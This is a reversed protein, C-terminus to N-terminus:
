IHVLLEGATLAPFSGGTFDGDRTVVVDMGGLRAAEHIIADELDKWDLQLASMVVQGDVPLVSLLRLITTLLERSRQRGAEKTMIYHLTDVSTACIYGDVRGEEIRQFLRAAEHRHPERQLLLDLLINIDLVAKM